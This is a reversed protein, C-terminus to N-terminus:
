DDTTTSTSESAGGDSSESAGGDSEKASDQTSTAGESTSGYGQAYWGGGKLMFGTRAVTKELSEAGCSSCASPPPDSMKALVETIERCGTCRYRYIPM